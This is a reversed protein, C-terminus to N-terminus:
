HSGETKLDDKATYKNSYVVVIPDKLSYGTVPDIPPAYVRGSPVVQIGNVGNKSDSHNIMSGDYELTWVDGKVKINLACVIVSNHNQITKINEETCPMGSYVFATSSTLGTTFHWRQAHQYYLIDWLSDDPNRNVGYTYTSGVFTRCRDYLYLRSATGIAFRGSPLRIQTGEDEARGNYTIVANSNEGEAQTYNRRLSEEIWDLYYYYDTAEKGADVFSNQLEYEGNEIMYTDVPKWEGTDLNLEWYRPTIQMFYELGSNQLTGTISRNEGYYDGVTEVDMYLKYGPFLQLNQVATLTQDAMTLPLRLTPYAKGGYSNYLTGYTDQYNTSADALQYRADMVDSVVKFPKTSDVKPMVNQVLWGSSVPLTQKFLNAFKWDGTDNITLSGITGIVDIYVTRTADHKAALSRSDRDLNRTESNQLYSSTGNIAYAEFKVSGNAMEKSSLTCYFTYVGNAGADYTLSTLNIRTGAAFTQSSGAASYWIVDVPFTVYKAKLWVSTDMGNTYGMGRVSTCEDIGHLNPNQAFDGVDPFYIKFERDVNIFVDSLSFETDGVVVKSPTHNEDDGCPSYCRLDGYSYHNKPDNRDIYENGTIHHPNNCKLVTEYTQICSSTCAHANLEGTCSHLLDNLELNSVATTHGTITVGSARCSLCVGDTTDFLHYHTTDASTHKVVALRHSPDVTVSVKAGNLGEVKYKVGDTWEVTAPLNLEQDAYLRDCGLGEVYWMCNYGSSSYPTVCFRYTKGATLSYTISFNYGNSDDQRIVQIGNEYIIGVPDGSTLTDTYFKITMNKTPTVTYVYAASYGIVHGSNVAGTCSSDCVHAPYEYTKMCILKKTSEVENTRYGCNLHYHAQTVVRTCKAPPDNTYGGSGGGNCACSNYSSGIQISYGCEDCIAYTASGSNYGGCTTCQSGGGSGTVWFTTSNCTTTTDYSGGAYCGTGAYKDGTHSHPTGSSTKEYCDDTHVHIPFPNGSCEDTCEHTNFGGVHEMGSQVEAYCDDSHQTYPIDCNLYAFECSSDMPCGVQEVGPDAGAQVSAETRLDLYSENSLVVAYQTSVPNHIVIDNISAQGPTYGVELGAEYDAHTEGGTTKYSVVKPAKIKATGVDKQGNPVTNIIDIGTITLSTNSANNAASVTAYSTDSKMNPMGTLEKDALPNSTKFDYRAKNIYKETPISYNGNYGIRSIGEAEWSAAANANNDWMESAEPETPFTINEGPDTLTQSSPADTFTFTTNTIPVTDSDYTYFLPVQWGRSAALVVNDSIVTATVTKGAYQENTWATAKAAAAAPKQVESDSKSISTDGYNKGGQFTISFRIRGNGSIYKDQTHFTYYGNNMTKSYMNSAFLGSTADLWCQQLQWLDLATIDMYNFAEITQNVKSTYTISYAHGKNASGAGSAHVAVCGSGSYSTNGNANCVSYGDGWVTNFTQKNEKGCACVSTLEIPGSACSGSSSSGSSCYCASEHSHTTYHGAGTEEDTTVWGSNIAGTCFSPAGCGGAYTSNEHGPCSYVCATDCDYCKSATYTTTYNRKADSQQKHEAELNIIFETAGFGLYLNETTPVGAMAEYTENTPSGQKIEVYPEEPESYYHVQTANFEPEQYKCKWTDYAIATDGAADEKTKEGVAVFKIATPEEESDAAEIVLTATAEYRITTDAKIAIDSDNIQFKNEGKFYSELSDYTANEFVFTGNSIIQGSLVTDYYSSNTPSGAEAVGKVTVTLETDLGEKEAYDFLKELNEVQSDSAKLSIEYTVSTVGGKEVTTNNSSTVTLRIQGDAEPVSPMAIGATSFYTYGLAGKQNGFIDTPMLTFVTGLGTGVGSGYKNCQATTFWMRAINAGRLAGKNKNLMPSMNYTEMLKQWYEEAYAPNASSYANTSDATQQLADNTQFTSITLSGYHELSGNSNAAYMNMPFSMWTFHKDTGWSMMAGMFVVVFEESGNRNKNKLFIEVVDDNTGGSMYNILVLLDLYQLLNEKAIDESLEPNDKLLTKMHAALSGTDSFHKLFKSVAAGMESTHSSVYSNIYSMAVQEPEGKYFDDVLNDAKIQESVLELSFTSESCSNNRPVVYINQIAGGGPQGSQTMFQHIIDNKIDSGWYKGDTGTDRVILVGREVMNNSLPDQIEDPCGALHKNQVQWGIEDHWVSISGEKYEEEKEAILEKKVEPVKNNVTGLYLLIGPECVGADAPINSITGDANSGPTVAAYALSPAICAVSLLISLVSQLLRKCKRKM